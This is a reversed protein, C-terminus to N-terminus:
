NTTQKVQSTSAIHRKDSSWDIALVKGQHGKLVRRAKLQFNNITELKQAVVHV